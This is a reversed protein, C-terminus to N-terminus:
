AAQASPMPSRSVGMSGTHGQYTTSIYQPYPQIKDQITFGIEKLQAQALTSTDVYAQTYVAADAHTWTTEIKEQGAATIEWGNETLLLEQAIELLKEREETSM